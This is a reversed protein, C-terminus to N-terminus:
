CYKRLTREKFYIDLSDVNGERERRRSCEAFSTDNLAGTEGRVDKHNTRRVAVLTISLM